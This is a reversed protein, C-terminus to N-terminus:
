EEFIFEISGNNYEINVNSGIKFSEAKNYGKTELNGATDLTELINNQGNTVVMMKDTTNTAAGVGFALGGEETIKTGKGLATSYDGGAINKAWAPDNDVTVEYLGATSNHEGDALVKTIPYGNTEITKVDTTLYANSNITYVSNVKTFLIISQVGPTLANSDDTIILGKFEYDPVESSGNNVDLETGGNAFNVLVPSTFGTTLTQQGLRVALYISDGTFGSLSVNDLKFYHRGLIAEITYTNTGSCSILYNDKNTISTLKGFNEETMLMSKPDYTGNRYGSPFVVVKDSKLYQVSM